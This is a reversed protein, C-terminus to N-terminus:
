FGINEYHSIREIKNDEDVVLCVADILYTQYLKVMDPNELLYFEAMRQVRGLKNKGIMEEPTGFDEGQKLKVEVFSLVNNKTVILDIEGFKTSYNRELIKFGEKILYESAKDEGLKGLSRNFQKAM